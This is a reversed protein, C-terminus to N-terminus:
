LLAGKEHLSRNSHQLLRGFGVSLFV